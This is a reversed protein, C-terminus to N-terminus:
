AGLGSFEFQEVLLFKDSAFLSLFAEEEKDGVVVLPTGVVDVYHDVFLGEGGEIGGVGADYFRFGLPTIVDDRYLTM